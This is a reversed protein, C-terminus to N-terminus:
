HSNFVGFAAEEGEEFPAFFSIQTKRPKKVM